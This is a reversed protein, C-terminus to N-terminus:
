EEKLKEVEEISLKTAKSITEVDIQLALLEKAIEIRSKKEGKELGKEMM